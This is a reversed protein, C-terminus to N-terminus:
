DAGGKKDTSNNRVKMDRIQSHIDEAIQRSEASSTIEDGLYLKIGLILPELFDSDESGSLIKLAEPGYGNATLAAFLEVTVWPDEEDWNAYRIYQEASKLADEPESLKELVFIAYQALHYADFAGLAFAQNYAENAEDIKGYEKNLLEAISCLLTPQYPFIELSKRYAELAKEYQGSQQYVLGLSIWDIHNEPNSTILELYALEALGWAKYRRFLDGAIIWANPVHNKVTFEENLYDFAQNDKNHFIGLIVGYTIKRSLDEPYEHTLEKIWSTAEDIWRPNEELFEVIAPCNKWSGTWNREIAVKKFGKDLTQFTRELDLIANTFSPDSQIAIGIDRSQDDGGERYYKIWYLAERVGPSEVGGYLMNCFLGFLADPTRYLHTRGITADLIVLGRDCLRSLYSSITNVNMNIIDSLTRAPSPQRTLGLAFYVKRETSPLTDIIGLYYPMLEDVLHEVDVDLYGAGTIRSCLALNVVLKPNGGTLYWVTPSLSDPIDSGNVHSWLAKCDQIDLNLLNITSLGNLKRIFLDEEYKGSNITALIRYIANGHLEKLLTEAKDWGFQDGFLIDLNDLVLLLKRGTRGAYNEIAESAYKLLHEDNKVSTLRELERSVMEDDSIVSVIRLVECMFEGSTNILFPYDPFDVIDYEQFNQVTSSLDSLARRLLMTKGSGSEGTILLFGHPDDLIQTICDHLQLLDLQRVVFASQIEDPTLLGPDNKFIRNM